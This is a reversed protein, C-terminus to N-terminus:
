LPMRWRIADCSHQVRHGQGIKELAFMQFTLIESATFSLMFTRVIDKISTSIRWRIADNRVNYEAVKVQKWSLFFSIPYIPFTSLSHVIKYHAKFVTSNLMFLAIAINHEM